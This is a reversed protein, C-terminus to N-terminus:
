RRPRVKSKPAPRRATTAPRARLGEIAALSFRTIHDTLEELRDAADPVDPQLKANFARNHVHFVCQGIISDVFLMLTRPPLTQDLLEAVLAQMSDCFPRVVQEIFRETMASPAQIERSMLECHWTPQSPDLMHRLTLEIIVRLREAAPLDADMESLKLFEDLGIEHAHQVVQAYLEQKDSFHYNVAAVSVGALETIEKITAREFGVKAFVEGAADLLKRKTEIASVNNKVNAM